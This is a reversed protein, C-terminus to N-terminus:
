KCNAVPRLKAEIRDGVKMGQLTEKSARFEHNTGDPARVTLKGTDADVMVIQGSVTQPAGPKPCDAPKTQGLAIGSSLVLVAGLAATVGMWRRVMAAGM